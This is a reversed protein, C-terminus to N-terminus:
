CCDLIFDNWDSLCSVSFYKKFFCILVYKYDKADLSQCWCEGCMLKCLYLSTNVLFYYPYMSFGAVVQYATVSSAAVRTCFNLHLLMLHLFERAQACIPNRERSASPKWHRPRCISVQPQVPVSEWLSNPIANLHCAAAWASSMCSRLSGPDQLPNAVMLSWCPASQPASSRHCLFKMLSSFPCFNTNTKLIIIRTDDTMRLNNWSYQIWTNKYLHIPFPRLTLPSLVLSDLVAELSSDICSSFCGHRLKLVLKYVLSTTLPM